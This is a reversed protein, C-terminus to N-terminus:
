TEEEVDVWSECAERIRESAPTPYPNRRYYDAWFENTRKDRRRMEERHIQAAKSCRWAEARTRSSEALAALDAWTM